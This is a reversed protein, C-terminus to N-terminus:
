AREPGVASAGLGLQNSVLCNWDIWVMPARFHQYEFVKSVELEGDGIRCQFALQQALEVNTVLPPSFGSSSSNTQFLMDM